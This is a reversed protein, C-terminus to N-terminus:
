TEGLAAHPGQGAMFEILAIFQDDTCDACFGMAPMNGFGGKASALLGSIGRADIRAAWGARFGSLPAQADINSHCSMCSREYIGALDSDRPLLIEARAIDGAGPITDKAGSTAVVYGGIGLIVAISIMGLVPKVDGGKAYIASVM